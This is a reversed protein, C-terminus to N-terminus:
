AWRDLARDDDGSRVIAPVPLTWYAKTRLRGSEVVARHGARLSKVNAFATREGIPTWFTFAHDVGHPDLRRALSPDAFLGKIESAFWLRRGDM